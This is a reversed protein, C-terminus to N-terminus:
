FGQVLTVHSNKFHCDRNAMGVAAVQGRYRRSHIRPCTMGHQWCGEQGAQSDLWFLVPVKGYCVPRLDQETVSHGTNGYVVSFPGTGHYKPRVILIKQSGSGEIDKTQRYVRYPAAQERTLVASAGDLPRGVSM